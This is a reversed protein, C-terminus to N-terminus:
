RFCSHFRPTYYQTVGALRMFIHLVLDLQVTCPLIVIENSPDNTVRM